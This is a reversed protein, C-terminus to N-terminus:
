GTYRGAFVLLAVAVGACALVWGDRATLRHHAFSKIEGTYGRASMAHYIRESREFSRLMLSGVMYGAVRGRWLLTNGARQGIRGASRSARARLLRGAEDVLVFLYRYMFSTIAVLPEPVRLSRLAWLLDPLPTVMVLLIAAQVSVWSKVVISGARVLGEYTVPWHLLPLYGIVEGPVTFPLALAALTFPIAVFSRRLVPRPGIKALQSIVMILLWAVAYLLWSGFPLLSVAIILALAVLLKTRPDLRHVSSERQQYRDDLQVFM